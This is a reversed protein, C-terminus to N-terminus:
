YFLLHTLGAYGGAATVALGLTHTGAAVDPAVVFCTNKVDFVRLHKPPDAPVDLAAGDLTWAVNARLPLRGAPCKGWPCPAECAVLPRGGHAVDVTLRLEGDAKTGALLVKDDVYGFRANTGARKADGRLQWSFSGAADIHRELAAGADRPLMSTLCTPAVSECLAAECGMRKPLARAPHHARSLADGDRLAGVL